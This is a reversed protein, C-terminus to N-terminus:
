KVGKNIVRYTLKDIQKNLNNRKRILSYLEIEELFENLFTKNTKDQSKNIKKM